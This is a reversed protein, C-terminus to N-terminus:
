KSSLTLVIGEYIIEQRLSVKRLVHFTCAVEDCYKVTFRCTTVNTRGEEGVQEEKKLCRRYRFEAAARKGCGSCGSVAQVIHIGAYGVIWRRLVHRIPMFRDHKSRDLVPQSYSLVMTRAGRDKVGKGLGM